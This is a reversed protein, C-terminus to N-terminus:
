GPFSQRSADARSTNYTHVRHCNACVVRCKAIEAEIKEWKRSSCNALGFSKTSPDIHDFDLAAHHENYGCVECGKELKIKAVKDRIAQAREKIYKATM